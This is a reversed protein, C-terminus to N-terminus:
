KNSFQKGRFDDRNSDTVYASDSKKLLHFNRGILNVFDTPWPTLSKPRSPIERITQTRIRFFQSNNIM